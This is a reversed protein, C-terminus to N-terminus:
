EHTTPLLKDYGGNLMTGFKKVLGENEAAINRAVADTKRHDYLERGVVKKTKRDQWETYRYRTTRMSYGMVNGHRPYQSIAGLKWPLTPDDLLPKVSYGELHKPPELGALDCLTPYIDIFEVLADTAKGKVKQGPASFILPAHADLEFNTHKCWDGYEGLKWGHDGWLVIATDDRLGLKDLEDLLRGVQADIYSVCAYYGHILHRTQEDTLPGKAPMGYYKRLEGWNTFAIKPAGEPRNREPIKIENPDYMDWYKKPACFPLHPKSYGVALFFRRDKIQKMTKIALDTTAGDRYQNDKVDGCDTPAGNKRHKRDKGRNTKRVERSIKQNKPDWYTKRKPMQHKVSWSYPDNGVGHGMHYIKGMGQSHYGNNMFHQPLTVVKPHVDRFATHLYWCKATDPRMGTLLSVRSPNCVAQQCYARKFLTGQAALRDINPSKIHKSGYCGLETRLDDIAIFLVNLKKGAPKDAWTLPATLAATGIGAIKLFDRRTYDM